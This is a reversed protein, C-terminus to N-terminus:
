VMKISQWTRLLFRSYHTGQIPTLTHMPLPCPCFYISIYPYTPFRKSTKRPVSKPLSSIFTFRAPLLIICGGLLSARSGTQELKFKVRHVLAQVMNIGRCTRLLLWLYYAGQSVLSPICPTVSLSILSYTINDPICLSILIRLSDSQLKPHFVKPSFRCPRVYCFSRSISPIHIWHPRCFSSM